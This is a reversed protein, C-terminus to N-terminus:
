KLFLQVTQAPIVQWRLRLSRWWALRGRVRARAENKDEREERCPARSKEEGRLSRTSQRSPSIPVCCPATSLSCEAPPRGHSGGAVPPNFLVGENLGQEGDEPRSGNSNVRGKGSPRQCRLRSPCICGAAAASSSPWAASRESCNPLPM